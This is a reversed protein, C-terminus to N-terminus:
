DGAEDFIQDMDTHRVDKGKVLYIIYECLNRCRDGIREIARAAWLVNLATSISRPDGAMYTIMQRTISEYKADVKRDQAVTKVAADVDTRAFADLADNLMNYTLQGMHEIENMVTPSLKDGAMFKAMKAVREAEDGIREVDTITKIVSLVFRLDGGAPQRTALITTCREDLAVEMGNVLHDKQIIESAHETDGSALATVADNLQQAVLGGMELVGNRLEELERAFAQSVHPRIQPSDSPM